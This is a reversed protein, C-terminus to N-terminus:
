GAAPVIDFVAVEPRCFLRVPPSGGQLGIGRSVYATMGGQEYRGSEYRTGHRAFTMVAGAYPFEGKFGDLSGFNAEAGLTTWKASSLVGKANIRPRKRRRRGCIASIPGRM